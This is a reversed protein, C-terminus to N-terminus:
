LGPEPLLMSMGSVNNDRRYRRGSRKRTPSDNIAIATESAQQTAAAASVAAGAIMVVAAQQAPAIMAAIDVPQAPAAPQQTAPSAPVATAPQQVPSVTNAAIQTQAPSTTITGTAAATSAVVPQAAPQATPIVQQMVPATTTGRALTNNSTANSHAHLGWWAGVFVFLGVVVATSIWQVYRDSSQAAENHLLPTVPASTPAELGSQSLAMNIDADTFNLMRAYSRLYGRMFTAPPAQQFDETEIINLIDPRLHLRSAADKQSLNLAERAQKLRTGFGGLTTQQTADTM